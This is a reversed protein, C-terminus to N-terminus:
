SRGLIFPFFTHQLVEKQGIEQSMFGIYAFYCKKATSSILCLAESM